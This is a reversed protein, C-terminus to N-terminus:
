DAGRKARELIWRGDSGRSSLYIAGSSGFAVISRGVPLRARAFLVGSDSVLDYVLEGHRSDRTTNPLIWVNGARDARAAGNVLSPHYDPLESETASEVIITARRASGEPASPPASRTLPASGSTATASLLADRVVNMAYVAGGRASASDQLRRWARNTSDEVSRKEIATLSRWAFPMRPFIRRPGSDALFEVHYDGGRILVLTGNSTVTWDDVSEIPTVRARLQQESASSSLSIRPGKSQKVRALTDVTRTEFRFRVLTASDPREISTTARDSASPMKSPIPDTAIRFLLDGELTCYAPGSYLARFDAGSPPGAFKRAVRGEADIMVLANAFRDVFVSSDSTCSILSSPLPGYGEDGSQLSDLVISTKSMDESLRTVQRSAPDNVLLSGRAIERVQLISAFTRSARAEINVNSIPPAPHWARGATTVGVVGLSLLALLGRRTSM